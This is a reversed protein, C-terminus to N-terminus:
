VSAPAKKATAMNLRIFVLPALAIWVGIATYRVYRLVYGLTSLEDAFLGFVADLGYRLVMMGVIGLLFRGARIAWTGQADFGGWANLWEWGVLFGFVAGMITVMATLALPAIPDDPATRTANEVWAAPLTFTQSVARVLLVNLFIVALSLVFYFAIRQGRGLKKLWAVFPKESVFLFWVLLIGLGWGFFVDTPFHVGLYIRSFGILLALGGALAWAWGRRLYVALGSFIVVSNQAHGSPLGFTAEAGTLLRVQADYWYPRPDHFGVKILLNVGLSIILYMGIRIGLQAEVCWYLFPFILLYFDENGLFTLSNMPGVLWNGLSQLSLILQIGWDLISPPM